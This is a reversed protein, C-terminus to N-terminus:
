GTLVSFRITLTDRDAEFSEAAKDALSEFAAFTAEDFNTSSARAALRATLRDNNPDILLEIAQPSSTSIATAALSVLQGFEAMAAGSLGKRHAIKTAGEVLAPQYAVGAPIVLRIETSSVCFCSAM